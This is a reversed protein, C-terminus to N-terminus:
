SNVPLQLINRVQSEHEFLSVPISAGSFDLELGVLFMLFAFGLEALVTTFSTEHALALVQPGVAIGYIIEGVAAPVGIRGALLPIVFAGLAFLLLPFAEHIHM